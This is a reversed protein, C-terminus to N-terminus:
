ARPRARAAALSRAITSRTTGSPQGLTRSVDVNRQDVLYRLAVAHRQDERLAALVRLVADRDDVVRMPDHAADVPGLRHVVRRERGRRRFGDVVENRVSRRLYARPREPPTGGEWLPWMRALVEAVADEAWVPDSTLATALRVADDRHATVFATFDARAADPVTRPRRPATLTSM